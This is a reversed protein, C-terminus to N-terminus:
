KFWGGIVQGLKSVLGSAEKGAQKVRPDAKAKKIAAGAEKTVRNRVKKNSALAAVGAAAAVATAGLLVKNVNSKKKKTAM